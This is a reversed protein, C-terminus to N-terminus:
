TREALTCTTFRMISFFRVFAFLTVKHRRLCAVQPFMQFCACSNGNDAHQVFQSMNYKHNHNFHGIQVSDFTGILLFTVTKYGQESGM